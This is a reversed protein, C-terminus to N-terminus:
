LWGVDLSESPPSDAHVNESDGTFLTLTESHPGHTSASSGM